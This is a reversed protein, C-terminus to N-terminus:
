TRLYYWGALFLIVALIVLIVPLKYSHPKVDPM